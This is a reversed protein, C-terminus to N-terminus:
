VTLFSVGLSGVFDNARGPQEPPHVVGYDEEVVRRLRHLHWTTVLDRFPLLQPSPMTLITEFKSDSDSNGKYLQNHFDPLNYWPMMPKAHHANHYGFNLSLINLFPFRVSMVNSFTNEEEYQATRPGPGPKYDEVLMVEYTHQFADHMSLFHVIIAGAILHPLLAGRLWLYVYLALMVPVGILASRRRSDSCAKWDLIPFFAARLHMITEVAPIFAWEMALVLNRVVPRNVFRRYDFEGVDARDNHHAIHLKRLYDFNVYPCGALWLCLIGVNRNAKPEVFISSHAAEHVLYSAVVRGHAALLVAAALQLHTASAADLMWLLGLADAVLAYLVAAFHKWGGVPDRLTPRWTSGTIITSGAGTGTGTSARAQSKSSLPTSSM